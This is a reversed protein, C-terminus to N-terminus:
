VVVHEVLQSTHEVTVGLTPDRIDELRSSFFQQLREVMREPRLEDQAIGSPSSFKMISCKTNQGDPENGFTLLCEYFDLPVNTLSTVDQSAPPVYAIPYDLLIAALPVAIELTTDPPLSYTSPPVQYSLLSQLSFLAGLM